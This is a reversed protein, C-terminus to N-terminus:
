YSFYIHYLKAIKSNHIQCINFNEDFIINDFFLLKKEIRQIDQSNINMIFISNNNKLSDKIM